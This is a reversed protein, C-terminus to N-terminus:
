QAEVPALPVLAAAPVIPLRIRSPHARSLHVANLAVRRSRAEAPSEGTNPNV